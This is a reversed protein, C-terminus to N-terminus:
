DEMSGRARKTFEDDALVLREFCDEVDTLIQKRRGHRAQNKCCKATNWLCYGSSRQLNVANCQDREPQNEERDILTRHGNGDSYTFM